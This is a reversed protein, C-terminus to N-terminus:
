LLKQKVTNWFYYDKFRLLTVTKESLGIAIRTVGKLHSEIGDVAIRTKQRAAQAKTLGESVPYVCVALDPPLLISSTFSRYAASNVPAIPTVQLLPIRPDVIGGGLAYNYATSGAPTAVIIGDGSFNEIFRDGIYIDLHCLRSGEGRVVIENLGQVRLVGGAHECTGEVTRYEQRQYDGAKYKEIFLDIDAEDLEQFFGLHGTNIGVFPAEPFDYRNLAHLFSGDGGICVILDAGAVEDERVRFGAAALKAKVDAAVKGSGPRKHEIVAITRM